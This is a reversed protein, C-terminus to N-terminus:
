WDRWSGEVCDSLGRARIGRAGLDWTDKLIHVWSHVSNKMKWIEIRIISPESYQSTSPEVWREHSICMSQNETPVPQLSHGHGVRVSLYQWLYSKFSGRSDDFYKKVRAFRVCYSSMAEQFDPVPTMMGVCGSDSLTKQKVRKGSTTVARISVTTQNPCLLFYELYSVSKYEGAPQPTWPNLATLM